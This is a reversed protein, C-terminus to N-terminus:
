DGNRPAAKARPKKSRRLQLARNRRSQSRPSVIVGWVPVGSRSEDYRDPRLFALVDSMVRWLDGQVAQFGKQIQDISPRPDLRQALEEVTTGLAEARERLYNYRFIKYADDWIAIADCELSTSIRDLTAKDMGRSGREYGNMTGKTVGIARALAVQSMGRMERRLAVAKGLHEDRFM